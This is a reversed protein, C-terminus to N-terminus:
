VASLLKTNLPCTWRTSAGALALVILLASAFGPAAPLAVALVRVHAQAMPLRWYAACGLHTFLPAVHFGAAAYYFKTCPM